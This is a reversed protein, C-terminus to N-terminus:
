ALNNISLKFFLWHRDELSFLVKGAARDRIHQQQRRSESSANDLQAHLSAVSAQCEELQSQPLYTYLSLFGDVCRLVCVCAACMVATLQYFRFMTYVCNVYNSAITLRYLTVHHKYRTWM